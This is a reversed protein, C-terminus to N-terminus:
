LASRPSKPAQPRRLQPAHEREPQEQERAQAQHGHGRGLLAQLERLIVAFVANEVDVVLVVLLGQLLVVHQAQEVVLGHRLALLLLFLVLHGLKHQLNSSRLTIPSVTWQILGFYFVKTKCM